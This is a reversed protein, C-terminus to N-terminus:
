KLQDRVLNEIWEKTIEVGNEAARDVCDLLKQYTAKDVGFFSMMHYDDIEDEEMAPPLFLDRKFDVDFEAGEYAENLQDVLALTHNDICWQREEEKIPVLVLFDIKEELGSLSATYLPPRFAFAQYGFAEEFQKSAKITHGGGFWTDNEFPVKSIRVLEAAIISLKESPCDLKETAAMVLECRKTGLPTEMSRAGMGFTVFTRKKGQPALVMIDTHVYESKIEHVIHSVADGFFTTINEQIEELQDLNYLCPIKKM